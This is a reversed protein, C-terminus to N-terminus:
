FGGTLQFLHGLIIMVFYALLHGNRLKHRESMLANFLYNIVKKRSSRSKQQSEPGVM